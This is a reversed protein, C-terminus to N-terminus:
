VNNLIAPVAIPVFTTPDTQSTTSVLIELQGNFDINPYGKKTYFRVQGNAPVSVQPSVLWQLSNVANNVGTQQRTRVSFAGGRFQVNTKQWNNNSVNTPVIGNTFTAWGTAPPTANNAIATNEFGEPFQAFGLLTFFTMFFLLLKKMTNYNQVNQAKIFNLSLLLILFLTQKKM